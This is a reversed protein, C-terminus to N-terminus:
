VRRKLRHLCNATLILAGDQNFSDHRMTVIGRDPKSQSAKLAIVEAEAHITDGPRLPKLWRIEEMGPSGLNAASFIGLRFFLSFSLSLTQFGSAILGGFETQTAAVADIHFPQPDYVRAFDLIQTESITVAPTVFRQGPYLDDFYLDTM